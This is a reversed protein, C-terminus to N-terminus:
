DWPLSHWQNQGHRIVVQTVRGPETHGEASVAKQVCSTSATSSHMIEKCKCMEDEDAKM